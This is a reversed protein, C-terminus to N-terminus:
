FNSFHGDSFTVSAKTQGPPLKKRYQESRLANNWRLVREWEIVVRNESVVGSRRQADAMISWCEPISNDEIFDTAYRVLFLAKCEGHFRYVGLTTSIKRFNRQELVVSEL